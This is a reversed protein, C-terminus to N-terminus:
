DENLGVDEIKANIKFAKEQSRILPFVAKDGTQGFNIKKNDSIADVLNLYTEAGFSEKRRRNQAASMDKACFIRLYRVFFDTAM